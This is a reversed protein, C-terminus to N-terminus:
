RDANPGLLLFRRIRRVFGIRAVNRCRRLLLTTDDRRGVGIWTVVFEVGVIRIMEFIEFSRFHRFVTQHTRLRRVRIEVDIEATRANPVGDNSYTRRRDGWLTFIRNKLAFFDEIQDLWRVFIQLFVGIPRTRRRFRFRKEAITNRMAVFHM